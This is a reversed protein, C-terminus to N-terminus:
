TFKRSGAYSAHAKLMAHSLFTFTLSLWRRIRPNEENGENKQRTNRTTGDVSREGRGSTKGTGATTAQLFISDFM